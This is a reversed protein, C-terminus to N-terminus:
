TMCGEGDGQAWLAEWSSLMFVRSLMELKGFVTIGIWVYHLLLPTWVRRHMNRRYPLQHYETSWWGERVM